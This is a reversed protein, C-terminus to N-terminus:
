TVGTRCESELKSAEEEGTGPLRPRAYTDSDQTASEPLNVGEELPAQSPMCVMMWLDLVAHSELEFVLQATNKAM